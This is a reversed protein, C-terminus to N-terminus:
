ALHKFAPYKSLYQRYGGINFNSFANCV